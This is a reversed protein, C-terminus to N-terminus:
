NSKIHSRFTKVVKILLQLTKSLNSFIKILSKHKQISIYNQNSCPSKMIIKISNKSFWHRFNHLTKRGTKHSAQKCEKGNDVEYM